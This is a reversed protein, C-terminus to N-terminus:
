LKRRFTEAVLFLGALAAIAEVAYYAPFIWIRGGSWALFTAAMVPSLGAGLLTGIQKAVSVGSFRVRTDFLETLITGEISFMMSHFFVMLSMSATILLANKTDLIPFYFCMFVTSLIIGMAYVTRRGIRDSFAGFFLMSAIAVCSAILLSNTIVSRDIGVTRTAYAVSYTAALHYLTGNAMSILIGVLVPIKYDKIVDMVPIKAPQEQKMAEVFSASEPLNSRIYLGIIVLIASGVFPLRWGWGLLQEDSLLSLASISATALLVGIQSTMMIISGFFGRRGQPSSEITLLLAGASEGGLAFGQIFRLLVLLIPAWIGIQTYTPLLGIGVTSAGMLALTVMMTSRRGMRDGIHGFLLGGFPRAFYGVALSSFVAIVGVTPDLSPFFLKDFVLAGLFAYLFFDYWEMATGVTSATVVRAYSTQAETSHREEESASARSNM